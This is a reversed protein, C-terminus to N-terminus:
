NRGVLEIHCTSIIRTTTRIAIASELKHVGPNKAADKVADVANTYIGALGDDDYLLTARTVSLGDFEM